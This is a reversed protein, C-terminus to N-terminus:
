HFDNAIRSLINRGVDEDRVFDDIQRSSMRHNKRVSDYSIIKYVANPDNPDTVVRKFGGDGLTEGLEIRTGDNLTITSNDSPFRFARGRDTVGDVIQDASLSGDAPRDVPVDRSQIRHNYRENPGKAWVEDPTLRVPAADPSNRLGGSDIPNFGGPDRSTRGFLDLGPFENRVSSPPGGIDLDFFSDEDFTQPPRPMRSTVIQELSELDAADQESFRRSVSDRRTRLDHLTAALDLQDSEDLADIDDLAGNRILRRGNRIRSVERIARLNGLTGLAPAILGLGALASNSRRGEAERVINPGLVPSLGLANFYDAESQLYDEFDRRGFYALDFLDATTALALLSYGAASAYTGGSAVLATGAFTAPAAVVAIAMAKYANDLHAYAEQDRIAAGLVHVSSVYRRAQLDPIWRGNELRMLNPLLRRIAPDAGQGAVFLLDDVGCNGKNYAAGIANQTNTHQERLAKALRDNIIDRTKVVSNANSNPPEGVLGNLYARFDDFDLMKALPVLDDVFSAGRETEVRKSFAIKQQWFANNRANPDRRALNYYRMARSQGQQGTGVFELLKTNKDQILPVLADRILILAAHDGKTVEIRRTASRPPSRTWRSLSNAIAETFIWNEYLASRERVFSESQPDGGIGRCAAVKRLADRWLTPTEPQSLIRVSRVPPIASFSFRDIPRAILRENEGVWVVPRTQNPDVAAGDSAIRVGITESMAGHHSPGYADERLTLRGVRRPQGIPQGSADIRQAELSLVMGDIPLARELARVGIKIVDHDYFVSETVSGPEEDSRYFSIQGAQNAFLLPWHRAQANIAIQKTGPRIGPLLTARVPVIQEDAAIPDGLSRAANEFASQINPPLSLIEYQINPTNSTLVTGSDPTLDRGVLALLRTAQGSTRNGTTDYPYRYDKLRDGEQARQRVQDDLLVVQSLQTNGLEPSINEPHGTISLIFPVSQEDFTLPILGPRANPWIALALEVGGVGGNETCSRNGFFGNSRTRDRCVYSRRTIEVGTDRPIFYDHVGWLNEGFLTISTTPLNGRIDINPAYTTTLNIPSGVANGRYQGSPDDPCPEYHTVHTVNARARRWIEDGGADRYSWKGIAQGESASQTKSESNWYGLFGYGWRIDVGNTTTTLADVKPQKSNEFGVIGADGTIAANNKPRKQCWFDDRGTCSWEFDRYISVMGTPKDSDEWDVYWNGIMPHSVDPEPATEVPNQRTLEWLGASELQDCYSWSGVLRNGSAAPRLTVFGWHYTDKVFATTDCRVSSGNEGWEGEFTGDVTYLLSIAGGDNEYTGVYGGETP